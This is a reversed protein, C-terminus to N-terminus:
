VESHLAVRNGETDEMIGMFGHEPSIMTKEQLVKGGAAAVRSLQVKLDACSFYVLTGAHSPTYSEHLILAGTAGPKQVDGAFFAMKTGDLDVLQINTQFVEEYFSKARDIDTVPIEFWNIPNNNM